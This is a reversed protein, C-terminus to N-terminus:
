LCYLADTSQVMKSLFITEGKHRIRSWVVTFFVNFDTVMLFSQLCAIQLWWASRQLEIRESKVALTFHSMEIELTFIMSKQKQFELLKM